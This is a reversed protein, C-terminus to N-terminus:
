FLGAGAMLWWGVSCVSAKSSKGHCVIFYCKKQVNQVAEKDHALIKNQPLTLACV